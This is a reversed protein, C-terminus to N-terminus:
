SSKDAETETTSSKQNSVTIPPNDLVATRRQELETKVKRYEKELLKLAKRLRMNQTVTVAFGLLVGVAVCGLIITYLPLNPYTLGFFKLTVPVSNQTLLWVAIITLFISFFIKVERM